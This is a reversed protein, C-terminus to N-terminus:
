FIINDTTILTVIGDQELEQCTEEILNINTNMAVSTADSVLLVEFGAQELAVCRDKVCRETYIGVVVVSKVNLEKMKEVFTDDSASEIVIENENPALDNIIERNGAPQSKSFFVPIKEERALDLIHKISSIIQDSNHIQVSNIFHEQMDVIHYCTNLIYNEVKPSVIYEASSGDEASVTYTVANTFDQAVGSQPSLTAGESVEITPVLNNRNIDPTIKFEVSKNLEDIEGVLSHSEIVFSEIDKGWQRDSDTVNQQCGAFLFVSLTFLVNRFIIESM